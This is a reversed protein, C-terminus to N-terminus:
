EGLIEWVNVDGGNPTRYFGKVANVMVEGVSEPTVGQFNTMQTKTAGPNVSIWRLQPEDLAMAQNFGRVGFKSAIYVPVGEMVELGLGSSINVVTEKVYPLCAKTMKILGELNTRLEPAIDAWSRERLTKWLVVGANNVLIDIQGFQKVVQSVTEQISHDDTVDLHLRVVEPAGRRRCEDVVAASEPEGTRYTLALRCGEEAFALATGRGIGRSAGTILVVKGKLSKLVSSPKSTRRYPM